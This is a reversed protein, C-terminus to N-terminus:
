RKNGMPDMQTRGQESADPLKTVVPYVDTEVAASGVPLFLNKGSRNLWVGDDRVSIIKYGRVKQGVHHAKGNIMVTPNNGGLVVATCILPKAKQKRSPAPATPKAKPARLGQFPDRGLDTGAAQWNGSAWEQELRNKLADKEDAVIQTARDLENYLIEDDASLDDDRNWSLWDPKFTMLNFGVVVVLLLVVVLIVLPHRLSVTSRSM